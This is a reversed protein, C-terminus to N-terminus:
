SLEARSLPLRRVPQGTLRRWANAVAPGIPPVGPEGVGTPPETSQIVAVEVDPMENIRLSRYDHFNSQVIKGGEGLSVQDFLVAGLGYGVGGEMQARIVNPNVAIGCDVAVWVKHVRPTGAEVSVEAIEAVYTNFSKHLAVGRQRGEPVASGWDALEAVRSLVGAHRPNGDGLLALRGEVPDKGGAELLEDVFTEVAFGTHTHGVSRWWLVPIPLDTATSSVHLNPIGYPLDSAGEVTTEDFEGKKMLSQGVIHQRWAVINGDADVAGKLNHLYVPRYFGGRIDDERTWMHKIPRNMGSAAFAAAAERMYPSGFQARRGFSGGALQTNVRVNAVDVGCVEAIATKDMGPFQAGNFCDISGDENRMLVADLPEMPAHALYPFVIEREIITLGEGTLAAGVDGANAAEHGSEAFLARYDSEIQVSSRTEANALDWEVTLAARGKLAAWTNEAYVAVGSPLTQVDVVGPVARAAADDVSKVTAGFHEPHAVMVILMNEALVDFTFVAEGTSKALTDLKPLDTGILVFDAPDKLPPDEPAPMTAALDAVEGFGTENGSGEHRIRGKEVTIEGAPVGWTEAAAAVLMARATAGAKRMQEFSNAIATSGGTGQVGFLLNAYTEDDAPAAAARMQSWDADLEEAVLTALGTYPGQGFEIHKSLVTVTSDPAIRVFANFVQAGTVDAPAGRQLADAALGRPALAVGIVLGMGTLFARRSAQITM